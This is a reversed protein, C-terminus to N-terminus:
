FSKHVFNSDTIIAGKKGIEAEVEVEIGLKASTLRIRGNMKGGGGEVM